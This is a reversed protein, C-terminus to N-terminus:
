EALHDALREALAVITLTPNASGGTTFVSSGALYLNEVDHARCNGDVVGRSADTTMRTTGMHHGGPQATWSFGGGDTPTWLRGLGARAAEAGFIEMARRLARDDEPRIQWHLDIRPMGLADLDSERLTIRSEPDPSQEVRVTLRVMSQGDAEARLLAQVMGPTLSGTEAVDIATPVVQATLSPLGERARTEASLGFVGLVDVPHPTEGIPVDSLHRQYFSWDPEGNLLWGMSSYYHPHEMFYRGVCDCSNAVGEEIQSNSALLIRANELAGM